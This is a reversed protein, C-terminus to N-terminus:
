DGRSGKLARRRLLDLAQQSTVHKFTERDWPNLHQKVVTEGAGALGIFVTGVPKAATGGSPGAIGTVSLALDAGARRRAGEAMERAVAESVAGHRALTEASVGLWNQKATNSYVVLGGLFVGSAGPVNTIRHAILGGTCSEATALTQGRRTLERVVLADLEDDGEGYLAEGLRERVLGAAREVLDGSNPGEATLRVDVQGPRACYGVILGDPALAALAPGVREEVQSEGLGTSRLTRCTFAAPLGFERKLLPVVQDDFMPRLERPPGPLLIVWSARGHSRDPNPESKLALGPATGYANALVVAGEPVLAEVRTREPMPRGRSEFFRRLNELVAPDERLPKRLLKAVCDRTVDDSTPGLGGTVIVLDARSLAEGVAAQIREASDAVADQRSVPAGMDSLRRGLWQQNTNLVRGLLLEDGTNILEVIM